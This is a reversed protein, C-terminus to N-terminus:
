NNSQILSQDDDEFYEYIVYDYEGNNINILHLRFKQADSIKTYNKSVQKYKTVIGSHNRIARAVYYEKESNIFIKLEEKPDAAILMKYVNGENKINGVKIMSKIQM